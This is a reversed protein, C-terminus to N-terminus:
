QQVQIRTGIIYTVGHPRFEKVKGSMGTIADNSNLFIAFPDKAFAAVAQKYAPDRKAQDLTGGGEDLFKQAELSCSSSLFGKCGALLDLLAPDTFTNWTNFYLPSLQKKVWRDNYVATPLPNLKVRIGVQGLQGIVAEALDSKISTTIDMDYDLGSTVGAEALLQRARAQDQTFPKVDPNYGMTLDTIGGSLPRGYGQLVTRIITNIDIAYNMALRIRADKLKAGAESATNFYIYQVVPTKSTVVNFGGSKLAAVQDPPVDQIWDVGGARLEAVRSAANIIPRFILTKVLPKGKYGGTWYSENAEMTLHDDKVWEVFKFPGTGVPKSIFGANGVSKTYAAPLISFNNALVDFIRADVRSMIMDVNYPDVVKFEQVAAMNSAAASKLDADRLHELSFKVSDANFDEGNHFKIGQRLKFRVTLGTVTWSEALGPVLKGEYDYDVLNDFMNMRASIGVIQSALYPHASEIEANMGMTLKGVPGSPTASPGSTTPTSTCAAAILSLVLPLVLVRALAGRPLITM